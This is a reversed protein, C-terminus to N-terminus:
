LRRHKGTRHDLEQRLDAIQIRRHQEEALLDTRLNRVDQALDDIAAIARDVDNRLNTEAHGNVVQGQIEKVVKHNKHALWSPVAAILAVAIITFVDMWNDPNPNM